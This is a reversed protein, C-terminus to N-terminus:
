FFSATDITNCVQGLFDTYSQGFRVCYLKIQTLYTLQFQRDYLHQISGGERSIGPSPAGIKYSDDLFGNRRPEQYCAEGFGSDPITLAKLGSQMTEATSSGM